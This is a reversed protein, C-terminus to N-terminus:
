YLTCQQGKHEVLEFGSPNRRTSNALSCHSTGSPHGRTFVERPNQLVILLTNIMNDLTVQATEQQSKLWEQYRKQLNQLLSQLANDLILAQDNELLSITHACPLGMTKSFSGTCPPLPKETIACNTKQCQENIKKLAFTSVKGRINSYLPNNLAFLPVHIRESAVMADIEKKQNTVALSITTHIYYLDETSVQLYAKLTSHADEIRSTVTTGLHLYLNTWATVFKEKLPLWTDKLYTIVHPKNTYLFHLTNWKEEFKNETISYVIKNCLLNISNPFIIKFANILALERDMVVVKSKPVDHFLCAFHNLAWLYDLKEEGKIFVFSSYFTTNFSTIDVISLLPM